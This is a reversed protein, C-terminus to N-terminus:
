KTLTRSAVLRSERSLTPVGEVRAVADSGLAKGDRQDHRSLSPSQNSLQTGEKLSVSRFVSIGM